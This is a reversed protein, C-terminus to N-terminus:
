RSGPQPQKSMDPNQSLPIKIIGSPTETLAQTFAHENSKGSRMVAGIAFIALFIGIWIGAVIKYETLKAAKEEAEMTKVTKRLDQAAKFVLARKIRRLIYEAQENGNM